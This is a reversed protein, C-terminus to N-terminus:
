QQYPKEPALENCDKIRGSPTVMNPAFAKEPAGLIVSISMGDVKVEIPESQKLFQPCNTLIVQLAVVGGVNGEPPEFVKVPM